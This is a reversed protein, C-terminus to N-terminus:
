HSRSKRPVTYSPPKLFNQIQRGAGTSAPATSGYGTEVMLVRYQEAEGFNSDSLVYSGDNSICARTTTWYSQAEEGQIPVSRHQYLRRIEDGNGRIVMVESLHPTRRIPTTDGAKRQFEFPGYTTSIVCYPALKACGAHYDAWIDSTSCRFLTLIHKLGGGAEIPITALVGMNLQLTYIGYECPQETEMGTIMYQIGNADEFVDSHDATFCTEKPDCIGDKNGDWDMIEPGLYEFDLKSADLNVSFVVAAPYAAVIVYRKGTTSDPGRSIFIADAGVKLGGISDPDYKGCYTQATNLDLTCATYDDPAYFPIWNDKSTDSSAGTRIYKFNFPPQTYDILTTNQRTRIDHQVISTRTVAYILYPDVADWMSGEFSIPARYMTATTRVDVMIPSEKDTLLAFENTANLASPSSYGHLAYPGALIRIKAGFNPDTYSEGPSPPAFDGPPREGPVTCVAADPLGDTFSCGNPGDLYSFPPSPLRPVVNLNLTASAPDGSEPTVTLTAQYTGRRLYWSDGTLAIAVQTDGQGQAPSIAIWTSDIAAKWKGSAQIQLVQRLTIAGSEVKTFDLENPTVTIQAAAALPFVIGLWVFRLRM